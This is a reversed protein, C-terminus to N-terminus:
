SSEEEEHVIFQMGGLHAEINRKPVRGRAFWTLHSIIYGALVTPVQITTREACLDDAGDEDGFLCEGEYWESDLPDSPNLTLLQLQEGGIRGDMYLPVDTNWEGAKWHVTKWIAQRSRMSDVGSIVVGTLPTSENVAEAHGVVKCTDTIEQRCLFDLAAEIKPRGLDSPRYVSQAPLNHPEIEPDPDWLHLEPIGLKALPHILASGIGGIGIVHIPYGFTTPDFIKRQDSYDILNM